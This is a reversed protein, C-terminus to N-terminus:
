PVRRAEALHPGLVACTAGSLGQEAFYNKLLLGSSIISDASIELGYSQYRVAATEPLKSADNTLIYYPKGLSNLRDILQAAGPMAGSSHNLVGYADLLIAEYRSIISDITTEQPCPEIM